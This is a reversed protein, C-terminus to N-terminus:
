NKNDILHLPKPWHGHCILRPPVAASRYKGTEVVSIPKCSLSVVHLMCIYMCVYMCVYMYAHMCVYMRVYIYAHICAYMCVNMCTHMCEAPLPALRCGAVPAPESARLFVFLPAVGAATGRTYMIYINVM